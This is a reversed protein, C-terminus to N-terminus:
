LGADRFRKDRNTAFFGRQQRDSIAQQGPLGFMQRGMEGLTGALSDFSFKNSFPLNSVLQPNAALFEPSAPPIQGQGPLITMALSQNGANRLMDQIDIYKLPADAPM